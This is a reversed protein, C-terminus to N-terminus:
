EVGTVFNHVVQWRGDVLDLLVYEQFDGFRTDYYLQVLARGDIEV